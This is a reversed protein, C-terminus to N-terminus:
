CRVGCRFEIAASGNAALIALREAAVRQKPKMLLRPQDSGALKM